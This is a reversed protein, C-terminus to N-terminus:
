FWKLKRIKPKKNKCTQSVNSNGFFDEHKNQSQHLKTAGAQRDNIKVISYSM